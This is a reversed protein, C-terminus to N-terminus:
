DWDDHELLPAVELAPDGLVMRELLEEVIRARAKRGALEARAERDVKEAIPVGEELHIAGRRVTRRDAKARDVGLRNLLDPDVGLAIRTAVVVRVPGPNDHLDGDLVHEVEAVQVHAAGELGLDEAIRAARGRDARHERVVLRGLVDALHHRVVPRRGERHEHGVLRRGLVRGRHLVAIAGADDIAPLAPRGGEEAGDLVDLGQAEREGIELERVEPADRALVDARGEPDVRPHDPDRGGRAIRPERADLVGLGARAENLMRDLRHEGRELVLEVMPERGLKAVDPHGVVM